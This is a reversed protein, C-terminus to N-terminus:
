RVSRRAKEITRILYRLGGEGKSFTKAGVGSPHSMFADIIETDDWGHEVMWCVVGYDHESRAGKGPDFDLDPGCGLGDFFQRLSDQTWTRPAPERYEYEALDSFPYILTTDFRILRVPVKGGDKHNSTGPLRLIRAADNVGPDAGILRGVGKMIKRADEFAVYRDVRIYCHYGHGSDVIVSPPVPFDLIANLAESKSDGHHKADVDFFLTNTYPYVDATKGGERVRPIVGMYVDFGAEDDITADMVVSTIDQPLAYFVQDVSGHSDITRIEGYGPRDQGWLWNLFDRM